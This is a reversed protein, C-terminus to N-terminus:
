HRVSSNPIGTFASWNREYRGGIKFTTGDRLRIASATGSRLRAEVFATNVIVQRHIRVFQSPSLAQELSHMTIRHLRTRNDQRVEVYNGAARIWEITATARLLRDMDSGVEAEATAREESLAPISRSVGILVATIGVRPLLHAVEMSLQLPASGGMLQAFGLGLPIAILGSLAFISAIAVAQRRPPM